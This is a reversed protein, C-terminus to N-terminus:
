CVVVGACGVGCRVTVYVMACCKYLWWCVYVCVSVCVCVCVLCVCVCVFVRVCM